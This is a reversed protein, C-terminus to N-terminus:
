IGTCVTVGLALMWAKFWFGKVRPLWAGLSTLEPFGVAKVGDVRCVNKCGTAKSGSSVNYVMDVWQIDMTAQGGVSMNGSWLGGNSWLNMIFQSAKKPVGYTKNSLSVDNAFWQSRGNTWDLRYTTWAMWSNDVQIGNGKATTPIKVVSSAGIVDNGAKDLDPQNSARFVSTPDRTLIEIDSENQDDAFLFLGAVAGSSGRVRANIRISAYFINTFSTDIEGASQFNSLRTSRLTLYTPSSASDRDVHLM